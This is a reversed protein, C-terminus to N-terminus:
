HKPIPSNYVPKQSERNMDPNQLTLEYLQSAKREAEAFYSVRVEALRTIVRIGSPKRLIKRGKENFALVRAYPVGERLAEMVERRNLGLLIYVLRRRIHSRTYRACVCRGIFDDLGQSDRWHKLFLGEIGEDIGYINRLDQPKSRIFVNQLLPWLKSEDSIEAEALIKRSYEPMMEANGHLNERIARSSFDGERKVALIKQNYNHRIIERVYSLALMNNPQSIFEEAGHVVSELALAYAKPYSAGRGLELRLRRTFSESEEAHILSMVDFEPAEMGFAITDTFGSCALLNVAGKAFDQGAACAFLFPLELVLDAGANLAIRSRTFKDVIAPSGRQTFNGSLVVVCSESHAKAQTILHQHGNHLPNFEAIIGATINIM